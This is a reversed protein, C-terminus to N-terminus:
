TVIIYVLLYAVQLFTKIDTLIFIQKYTHPM